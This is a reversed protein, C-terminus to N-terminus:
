GLIFMGPFGVLTTAVGALLLPLGLLLALPTLFLETSTVLEPKRGSVLWLRRTPLAALDAKPVGRRHTLDRGDADAYEYVQNWSHENGHVYSKEVTRRYEARVRGGKFAGLIQSIPVWSFVFGVGALCPGISVCILVAIAKVWNGHIGVAVTYVALFALGGRVWFQEPAYRDRLRPEAAHAKGSPTKRVARGSPGSAPPSASPGSPAPAPRASSSRATGRVEPAQGRLPLATGAADPGGVLLRNLHNLAAVGNDLAVRAQAPDRVAAQKAKEYADLARAYEVAMVHTTGPRDAAFPHGAPMEGFM